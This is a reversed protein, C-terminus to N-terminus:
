AQEGAVRVKTDLKEDNRKRLLLIFEPRRSVLCTLAVRETWGFPLFRVSVYRSSMGFSERVRTKECALARLEGLNRSRRM